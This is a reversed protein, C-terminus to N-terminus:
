HVNLVKAAKKAEDFVCSLTWIQAAIEMLKTGDHDFISQTALHKQAIEFCKIRLEAKQYDNM